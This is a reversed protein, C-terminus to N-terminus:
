RVNSFFGMGVQPGSRDPMSNSLILYKTREVSVCAVEQSSRGESM